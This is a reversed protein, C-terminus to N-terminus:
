NEPLDTLDSYQYKQKNKNVTFRKNSVNKYIVPCPINDTIKSKAVTMGPSETAQLLSCSTFLDPHHNSIAIV